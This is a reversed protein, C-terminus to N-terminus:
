TTMWHFRYMPWTVVMTPPISQVRRAVSWSGAGKVMMGFARCCAATRKRLSCANWVGVQIISWGVRPRISPIPM